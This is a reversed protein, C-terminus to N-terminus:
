ESWGISIIVRACETGGSTTDGGIGGATRTPGELETGTCEPLSVRVATGESGSGTLACVGGSLFSFGAFGEANLAGSRVGTVRGASGRYTARVRIGGSGGAMIGKSLGVM